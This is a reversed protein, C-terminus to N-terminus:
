VLDALFDLCIENVEEKAEIPLWHGPGELFFEGRLDECLANLHGNPIMKAVVDKSGQIFICPQQVKKGELDNTDQLLTPFARYWNLGGRFGSAQYMKVYYDFDEKTMWSPLEEPVPPLAELIELGGTGPIRPEHDGGSWSHLQLVSKRVDMDLHAEATGVNGCFYAIYFFTDGWFKEEFMQPAIHRTYPNSMAVVARVREPYLLAVNWGVIAGWDHIMLAYEEYGLATALGDIDACLTRIKYDEINPPCDSM